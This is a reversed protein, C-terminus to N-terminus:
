LAMHALLLMHCAPEPSTPMSDKIQDGRLDCGLKLLELQLMGRQLVTGADQVLHQVTGLLLYCHIGVLLLLQLTRM